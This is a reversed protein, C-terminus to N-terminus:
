NKLAAERIGSITAAPTIAEQDVRLEILAPGNFDRARQYAGAFNETKDVM